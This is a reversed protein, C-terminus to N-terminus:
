VVPKDTDLFGNLIKDLRSTIGAEDGGGWFADVVDKPDLEPTFINSYGYNIRSIPFWVKFDVLRFKLDVVMQFTAGIRHEITVGYGKVDNTGALWDFFSVVDSPVDSTMDFLPQPIKASDTIRSASSLVVDHLWDGKGIYRSWTWVRVKAELLDDMDVEATIKSNLRKWERLAVLCNKTVWETMWDTIGIDIKPNLPGFTPGLSVRGLDQTGKFIHVHPAEYEKGHVVMDYGQYSDVTAMSSIMRIMYLLSRIKGWLHWCSIGEQFLTDGDLEEGGSFYVEGPGLRAKGGFPNKFRKYVFVRNGLLFGVVFSRKSVNKVYILERM